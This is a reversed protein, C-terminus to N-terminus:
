VYRNKGFMLIHLRPTFRWGRQLAEQAIWQTRSTLDEVTVGEPMLCVDSPKVGSLHALFDNEIEEIDQPTAVVFKLQFDNGYTKATDIYSQIVEINVRLEEHKNAWKENFAVETDKVNAEWPTSSSLKPSMSILDTYKAIRHQFITANTELTTHLGVVQLKQLLEILGEAQMTPEGGSIVVYEINQPKTVSDVLDVITDVEVRNKEPKHSSYPSDCLSGKGDAGVWACRLNCSSLRIFMCPTGLLKGEGQFTGGVSYGTSDSQTQAPLPFIGNQVLNIKM